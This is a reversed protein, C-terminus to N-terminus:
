KLLCLTQMNLLEKSLYFFDDESFDERTVLNFMQYYLSLEKTREQLEHTKKELELHERELELTLNELESGSINKKKLLFANRLKQPFTSHKKSKNAPKM